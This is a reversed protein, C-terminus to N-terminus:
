VASQQVKAAKETEQVKVSPLVGQVPSSGTALGSGVYLVVCDCFLCLCVIMGQTPNSGMIGTNLHAFLTWVKPRAAVTTPTARVADNLRKNTLSSRSLTLLRKRIEFTEARDRSIHQGHALSFTAWRSLLNVANEVVLINIVIKVFTRWHNRYLISNLAKTINWFTKMKLGLPSLVGWNM